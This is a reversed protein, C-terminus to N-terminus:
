EEGFESVKQSRNPDKVEEADEFRQDDIHLQLVSHELSDNGNAFGIPNAVEHQNSDSPVIRMETIQSIDIDAACDADSNDSENDEAAETEILLAESLSFYHGTWYVHIVFNADLDFIEYPLSALPVQCYICPLPYAEPDRSVAHLSISLFGVAYGKARDTDSLWMVRKTSIFLTGPSEPSHRGLAIAVGPQVLMLEEGGNSDLPPHGRGEGVREALYQVGLVM